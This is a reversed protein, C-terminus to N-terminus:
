SLKCVDNAATATALVTPPGTGWVPRMKHFCSTLARRLGVRAAPWLATGSPLLSAASKAAPPRSPHSGRKIEGKQVECPPSFNLGTAQLPRCSYFSWRCVPFGARYQNDRFRLNEVESNLSLLQLLKCWGYGELNMAKADGCTASHGCSDIDRTASRM